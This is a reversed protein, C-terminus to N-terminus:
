NDTKALHAGYKKIRYRERSQKALKNKNALYYQEQYAKQYEKIKETNEIAYNRATQNLKLKNKLYYEKQYSKIDIM